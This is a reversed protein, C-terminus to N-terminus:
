WDFWLSNNPKYWNSCYDLLWLLGFLEALDGLFEFPFLGLRQSIQSYLNIESSLKGLLASPLSLKEM